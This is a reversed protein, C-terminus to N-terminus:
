DTSLPAVFVIQSITCTTKGGSVTAKPTTSTYTMATDYNAPANTCWATETTNVVMEVNNWVVQGFDWTADYIEIALLAQNM